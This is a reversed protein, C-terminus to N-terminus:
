PHAAAAAIAQRDGLVDHLGVTAADPGLARPNVLPAGKGERKGSRFSPDCRRRSQSLSIGTLPKITATVVRTKHRGGGGELSSRENSQLSSPIPRQWGSEISSGRKILNHRPGIWRQAELIKRDIESWSSYIKICVKIARWVLKM